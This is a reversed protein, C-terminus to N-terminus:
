PLCTGYPREVLDRFEDVVAEYVVKKFPVVLDAVDDISGWCWDSFEVETHANLDITSDDGLYRFLFWKQAQGKFKNGGHDEWTKLASDPLDYKLWQASEALLEAEGETISTEEALERWAAQSATEGDDVGGQPMQWAHDGPELGARKGLFVQDRQNLIMLGVCPRYAPGYPPPTDPQM